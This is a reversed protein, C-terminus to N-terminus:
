FQLASDEVSNNEYNMIFDIAELYGKCVVATVGAKNLAEIWDKQVQSTSGGKLRKMEIAVLGRKTIIFIDPVGPSVGLAKNTAKQKWSKTYTENPVRFFKYGALRLWRVLTKQEEYETPVVEKMIITAPRWSLSLVLLCLCCGALTIIVSFPISSTHIFTGCIGNCL